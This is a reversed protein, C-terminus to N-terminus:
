AKSLKRFEAKGVRSVKIFRLKGEPDNEQYSIKFYECNSTENESYIDVRLIHDAKLDHEIRIGRAHTNTYLQIKNKKRNTFFLDLFDYEQFSLNVKSYDTPDNSVWHLKIPDFDNVIENNTYWETVKGFCNKAIVRSCNKIKIRIYWELNYRDPDNISQLLKRYPEDDEYIIKVKPKRFFQWWATIAAIFLALTGIILSITDAITIEKM